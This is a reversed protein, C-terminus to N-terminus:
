YCPTSSFPLLLLRLLCPFLLMGSKVLTRVELLDFGFVPTCVLCGVGDVKRGGERECLFLVMM